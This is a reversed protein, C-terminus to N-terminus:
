KRREGEPTDAAEGTPRNTLREPLGRFQMLFPLPDKWSFVAYIKRGRLSKLWDRIALKGKRWLQYASQIDETLYIWKVGYDTQKLHANMPLGTADCYMAYLLELGCGEAIASGGTPRGINPEIILYEGTRQDKKFELYGLGMYGVTEFLNATAELVHNNTCEERLCGNGTELPFQRIKRSVVAGLLEQGKSYYVNCAYLNTEEGEISEQGILIESWPKYQDYHALFDVKSLVKAVKVNVNQEWEPTKKAPKLIAPFNLNEAAREADKRNRLLYTKPIPFGHDQAYTYFNPKDLLLEVVGAEPLVFHFWPRLRERHRSILLVSIDTCPFLVPKHEFTPGLAELTTILEVTKTNTIVVEQCTNTKNRFHSASRSLGIVEIRRGALIRATQLGQSSDLGVVIAPNPHSVNTKRETM